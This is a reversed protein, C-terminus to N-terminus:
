LAGAQAALSAAVSHDGAVQDQFARLVVVSRGAIAVM